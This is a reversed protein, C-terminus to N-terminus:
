RQDPVGSVQVDAIDPHGYLFEADDRLGVRV